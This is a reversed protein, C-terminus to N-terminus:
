PGGARRHHVSRCEAAASRRHWQQRDVARGSFRDSVRLLAELGAPDTKSWATGTWVKPLNKSSDFWLSGVQPQGNPPTAKFSLIPSYALQQVSTLAGPRQESPGAHATPVQIVGPELAPQDLNLWGSVSGIILRGPEYPGIGGLSAVQDLSTRWGAPRSDTVLGLRALAVLLQDLSNGWSGNVIAAQAVPAAGYFSLAGATSLGGLVQLGDGSALQRSVGHADDWILPTQLVM